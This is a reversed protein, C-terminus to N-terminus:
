DLPISLFVGCHDSAGTGVGEFPDIPGGFAKPATNVKRVIKPDLGRREIVPLIGQTRASLDPSLLLYDIQKQKPGVKERAYYHTWRAAAPLRDVVNELGAQTVLQRLASETPGANLDGAVVYHGRGDPFDEALIAAVRDAQRKRKARGDDITGDPYRTPLKSKFHNVYMTLRFGGADVTAALCDRSFIRKTPASGKPEWRRSRVAVIDHRSLIGVDIQRPDNGDVVMSYPYRRKLYQRNFADLIEINEVEQLAVVDPDNALIVQATALREAEGIPGSRELIRRFDNITLRDPDVPVVKMGNRTKDLMEYRFFLNQVNFTGIKLSRAM